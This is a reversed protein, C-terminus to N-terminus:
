NHIVTLLLFAFSLDLVSVSFILIFFVHLPTNVFVAFGFYCGSTHMLVAMVASFVVGTIIWSLWYATNSCGILILGMRQNYAKERSMEEFIIM